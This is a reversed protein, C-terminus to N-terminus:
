NQASFIGEQNSKLNDEFGLFTYKTSFVLMPTQLNLPNLRM